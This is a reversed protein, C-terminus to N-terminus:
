DTSITIPISFKCRVPVGSNKAPIWKPMNTILESVNKKVENYLNNPTNINSTKGDKEIIFDVYFTKNYGSNILSNPIKMNSTLYNMLSDEGGIFDPMIEAFIYPKETLKSKIYKNFTKYKKTKDKINVCGSDIVIAFISDFRYMSQDKSKLNCIEFYEDTIIKVNIDQKFLNKVIIKNKLKLETADIIGQNLVVSDNLNSVEITPCDQMKHKKVQANIKFTFLILVIFIKNKKM